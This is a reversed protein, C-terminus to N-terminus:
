RLEVFALLVVVEALVKELECVGSLADTAYDAFSHTTVFYWGPDMIFASYQREAM